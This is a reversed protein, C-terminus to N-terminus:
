DICVIRNNVFYIFNAFAGYFVTVKCFATLTLAIPHDMNLKRIFVSPEECGFLIAAMM